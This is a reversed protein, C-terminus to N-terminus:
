FSPSDSPKELGLAVKVRSLLKWEMPFPIAYEFADKSRHPAPHKTAKCAKILCDLCYAGRKFYPSPITQYYVIHITGCQVCKLGLNVLDGPKFQNPTNSSM